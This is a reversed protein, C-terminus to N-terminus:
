GAAYPRSETSIVQIRLGREKTSKLVDIVARSHSHVLITMGDRLLNQSHQTILSTCCQSHEAMKATQAKINEKVQSIDSLNLGRRGLEKRIMKLFIACLAKFALRSRFRRRNEEEQSRFHFYDVM